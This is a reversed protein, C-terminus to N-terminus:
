IAEFGYTYSTEYSRPLEPFQVEKIHAIVCDTLVKSALTARVVTVSDAKGAPSIVIELTVKGASNKPLEKSDVATALCRSMVSQKRGLIRTIEDMKESPVGEDSSSAGAPRAEAGTAGGAPTTAAPTGGCATVLAACLWLRTV